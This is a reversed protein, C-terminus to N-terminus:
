EDDDGLIKTLDKGRKVIRGATLDEPPVFSEERKKQEKEEQHENYVEIINNKIISQYYFLRNLETAFEKHENAWVFDKYHRQITEYLVDFGTKKGIDNVMKNLFTPIVINENYGAVDCLISICMNRLESTRKWELYVEETKYYKGNPAKFFIDSTGMEKTVQCKVRRSM